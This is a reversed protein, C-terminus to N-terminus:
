RLQSNPNHYVTFLRNGHWALFPYFANQDPLAQLKQWANYDVLNPNDIDAKYIGAETAAYLFQGDFTIDNVKIQSGGEGFMYTDKIEHKVM